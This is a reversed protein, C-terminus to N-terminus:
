ASFTSVWGIPRPAILAKLPDPPVVSGDRTEARFFIM